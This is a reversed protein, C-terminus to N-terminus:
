WCISSEETRKGSQGLTETTSQVWRSANLGVDGAVAWSQLYGTLLGADQAEAGAGINVFPRLSTEEKNSAGPFTEVTDLQETTGMLVEFMSKLHVALEHTVLLRLM